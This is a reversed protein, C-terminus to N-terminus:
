QLIYLDLPADTMTLGLKTSLERGEMNQRELTWAATLSAVIWLNGSKRFLEVDLGFRNNFEREMEAVTVDPEIHVHGENHNKRCSGLKRESSYKGPVDSKAKPLHIHNLFEINLYPYHKNFEHQIDGITRTDEIAIKMIEDQRIHM